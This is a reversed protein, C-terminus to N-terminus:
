HFDTNNKLLLYEPNILKYILRIDNEKDRVVVGERIKQSPELVSPGNVLSNIKEMDFIGSYLFPPEPLNLHVCRQHREEYSIYQEFRKIDIVVLKREGPKCGYTYGTQIGSGYIEGYIVMGQPILEKLNYKQVTETYVDLKNDETKHYQNSKKRKQPDQLQVNHSGWVFEWKPLFGFLKKIYDWLGKPHYQVWGARFNTGHIKEEVIVYRDILMQPFKKLHDIDTYVTFNPNCYKKSKRQVNSQPSGTQPPEYKVVGLLKTVDEGQVLKKIGTFKSVPIALGQSIIGRIKTTRIRGKEPKIKSDSFLLNILADPLVSDIPFYVVLDGAKITDRGVVCQWGLVTAIDLRDANPHNIINEVGEITVQLVSMNCWLNKFYFIIVM